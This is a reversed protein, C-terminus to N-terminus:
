DLSSAAENEPPGVAESESVNVAPQQIMPDIVRVVHTGIAPKGYVELPKFQIIVKRGELEIEKNM